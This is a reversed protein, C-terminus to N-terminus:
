KDVCNILESITKSKNALVDFDFKAAKSMIRIKSVPNSKLTQWVEPEVNYQVFARYSNTREVPKDVVVTEAATIKHITKDTLMILIEDGENITFKKTAVPEVFFVYTSDKFSTKFSVESDVNVAIREPKTISVRESTFADVEDIEYKCNQAALGTTFFLAAIVILIKM